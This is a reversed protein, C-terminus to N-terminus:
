GIPVFGTITLREGGDADQASVELSILLPVGYEEDYRFETDQGFIDIGDDVKEFLDEVTYRDVVEAAPDGESTEISVVQGDEVTVVFTHLFEDTCECSWRYRLEYDALDAAEWRDRAASLEQRTEGSSCAGFMLAASLGLVILRRMGRRRFNM